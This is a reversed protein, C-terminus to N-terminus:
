AANSRSSACYIIGGFNNNLITAALAAKWGLTRYQNLPDSVGGPPQYYMQASQASLETVGYFGRGM